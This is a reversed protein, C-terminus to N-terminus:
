LNVVVADIIADSKSAIQKVISDDISDDLSVLTLVTSGKEKRGLKMEAINIKAEGLITGLIGVVGPVDNNHVVLITGQPHLDFHFGDLYVFRPNNEGYVTGWIEHTKGDQGKVRVSILDTYDRELNEKKEIVQIGRQRALEPANIFNVANSLVPDLFGKLVSQTLFYVTKEKIEGSYTIAIEKETGGILSSLFTGMKECVFIFPSMEKLLKQGLAPVNVSNKITGNQFYEVIENSTEIAVQVEAEETSAGLHPSM